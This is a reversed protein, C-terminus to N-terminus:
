AGQRRQKYARSRLVDCARCLRGGSRMATNEPTYYHGRKCRGAGYPGKRGMHVAHTVPEVHAYNCCRKVRCLHDLELGDPIPGCFYEYVIRHVRHSRGKILPAAGGYGARFLHGLWLWCGTNPEFLIQDFIRAPLGQM